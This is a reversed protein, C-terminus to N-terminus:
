KAYTRFVEVRKFYFKGAEDMSDKLYNLYGDNIYNKRAVCELYKDSEKKLFKYQMMMTKAGIVANLSRAYNYRAGLCDIYGELNKESGPYCATEQTKKFIDSIRQISTINRDIDEIYGNLLNNIEKADEASYKNAKISNPNASICGDIAEGIIVMQQKMVKMGIDEIDKVMAESMSMAEQTERKIKNAINVQQDTYSQASAAASFLIFILIFILNSLLFKNILTRM